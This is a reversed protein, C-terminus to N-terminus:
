ISKQFLSQENQGSYFRNIKARHKRIKLLQEALKQQQQEIAMSLQADAELVGRGVKVLDEAQLYDSRRKSLLYDIARFNHYAANRLRMAEEFRPWDEEEIARLAFHIRSKYTELIKAIRAQDADM